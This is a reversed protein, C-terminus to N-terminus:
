AVVTSSLEKEKITRSRQSLSGGRFEALCECGDTPDQTAAPSNDMGDRADGTGSCSSASQDRTSNGTITQGDASVKGEYSGGIATLTMKVTSGDLTIKTVPLGDGGQDISYFVAKYGGDDGKTIKVVTRLDRGAHLTGQWTGAIGQIANEAPSQALSQAANVGFLAVAATLCGAVRLLLKRSLNLKRVAPKVM